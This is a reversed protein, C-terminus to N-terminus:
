VFNVLTMSILAFLVNAGNMILTATEWFSFASKESNESADAFSLMRYACIMCVAAVVAVGSLGLVSGTDANAIASQHLSVVYFLAAGNGGLLVLARDKQNLKGKAM